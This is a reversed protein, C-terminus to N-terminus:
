TTYRAWYAMALYDMMFVPGADSGARRAEGDEM